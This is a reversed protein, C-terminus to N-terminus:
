TQSINRTSNHWRDSLIPLSKIIEKRNMAEILPLSVQSRRSWCYEDKARDVILLEVTEACESIQMMNLVCTRYNRLLTVILIIVEANKQGTDVRM